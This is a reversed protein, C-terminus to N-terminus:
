NKFIWIKVLIKSLTEAVWSRCPCVTFLVLIIFICNKTFTRITPDASELSQRISAPLPAEVKFFHEFKHVKGWSWNSKRYVSILKAHQIQFLLKEFATLARIELREILGVWSEEALWHLRATDIRPSRWRKCIRARKYLRLCMACQFITYSISLKPKRM